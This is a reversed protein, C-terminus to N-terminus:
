KKQILYNIINFDFSASIYPRFMATRRTNDSTGPMFSITGIGVDVQKHPKINVGLVPKFGIRTDLLKQGRFYMDSSTSLGAMLSLRSWFKDKFADKNPLRNDFEGFRFNIGIFRFWEFYQDNLWVTGGGFTTSYIEGEVETEGSSTTSGTNSINGEAMFLTKVFEFSDKIQKSMDKMLAIHNTMATKALNRAKAQGIIADADPDTYHLQRLFLKFRRHDTPDAYLLDSLSKARVPDLTFYPIVGVSDKKTKLLAVAASDTRVISISDNIVATKAVSYAAFRGTLENIKEPTLKFGPSLSKGNNDLKFAATFQQKEFYRIAKEVDAGLIKLDYIKNKNLISDIRNVIRIRLQDVPFPDKNLSFIRFEFKYDESMELRRGLSFSFEKSTPSRTWMDKFFVAKGSETAEELDIIAAKTKILNANSSNVDDKIDDLEKDVIATLKAVDTEADKDVKFKYAKLDAVITDLKPSPKALAKRSDTLVKQKALLEKNKTEADVLDARKKKLDENKGVFLRYVTLEIADVNAGGKVPLGTIRLTTIYPLKQDNFTGNDLDFVRNEEQAHLPLSSACLVIAFVTLLSCRFKTVATHTVNLAIFLGGCM